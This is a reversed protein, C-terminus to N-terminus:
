LGFEAFPIFPLVMGPMVDGVEEPIELLGDSEAISSLVAAGGRAFRHAVPCREGDGLACRVFERRGPKRGMAFGAEVPFRRAPPSIAGALRLLGPRAIMLFAVLMAVPNGPLAFFPVGHIHGFAAPKGPKIAVSSFDLEGLRGAASRMHDEDGVSVGASSVIADHGAAASELTAVLADERDPLIGLDTVEFGLRALLAMLTPRNADHISGPRREGGVDILEDGSSLVAVRLRRRVAVGRVGLSALMGIEVPGLRRGAAFVTAGAAIDEGARRINAQAPLEVPIAILDGDRRVEEQMAIADVGDPPIAGTFIRVAEGPTLLRDFPRGAASVGVLAFRRPDGAYRVAYGDVASNDAAPVDIGAVIDTEVIRGDAQAIGVEEAGTVPVCRRAVLASAESLTITM